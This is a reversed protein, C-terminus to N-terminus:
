AGDYRHFMLTERLEPFSWVTPGGLSVCVSYPAPSPWRPPSNKKARTQATLQRNVREGGEPSDNYGHSKAGINPMAVIWKMRRANLGFGRMAHPGAPIISRVEIRSPSSNM